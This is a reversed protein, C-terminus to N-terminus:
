LTTTNFNRVFLYIELRKCRTTNVSAGAGILMDLVRVHGRSAARHAPSDGTRPHVSNLEPSYSANSLLQSLLSADGEDSVHHLDLKLPRRSARTSASKKTSRFFTLLLPQKSSKIVNAVDSVPKGMMSENGVRILTDGVQLKGSKCAQGGEDFRVIQNGTGLGFGIPGANFQVKIVRVWPKKNQKCTTDVTLSVSNSGSSNSGKSASVTSAVRKALKKPKPPLHEYKKVKLKYSNSAGCIRCASKEGPNKRSCVTCVWDSM